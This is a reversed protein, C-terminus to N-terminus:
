ITSFHTTTKRNKSKNRGDFWILNQPNLGTFFKTQFSSSAKGLPVDLFEFNYPDKAFDLAGLLYQAFVFILFQRREKPGRSGKPATPEFIKQEWQMTRGLNDVFQEVVAGCSILNMSLLFEEDKMADITDNARVAFRYFDTGEYERREQPTHHTDVVDHFDRHCIRRYSKSVESVKIPVVRRKDLRSPPSSAHATKTLPKGLQMARITQNADDSLRRSDIFDKGFCFWFRRVIEGRKPLTSGGWIAKSHRFRDYLMDLVLAKGKSLISNELLAHYLYLVIRLQSNCDIMHCGLELNGYYCLYSLISGACLPNWLMRNGFSPQSFNELSRVSDFNQCWSDPMPVPSNAKHDICLLKRAWELQSFYNKFVQKGVQVLKDFIPEVELIATLMAHIGFVISWSVPKESEAVYTRMLGILPCLEDERPLKTEELVGRFFMETWGPLIDTMLLGDLDRIKRKRPIWPFKGFFGRIPMPLCDRPSNHIANRFGQLLRLTHHIARDGGIAPMGRFWSYPEPLVGDSMQQREDLDGDETKSGMGLEYNVCAHIAWFYQEMEKTGTPNVEWKDCFEQTIEDKRNYQDSATRFYCEICDGLYVTVDKETCSGEAHERVTAMVERTIEPFFVTALVRYPTTLHEHHIMLAMEHRRVQEIAMSTVVAAGLLKKVIASGPCCIGLSFEFSSAVYGYQMVVAEMNRELELLFLISDAREDSKMLEDLTLPQPLLSPREVPAPPFMRVDDEADASDEDDENDEEALTEFMNKRGGDVDSSDEGEKIVTPVKPLANLVSWCYILVDLFYKHGIDGGGYVSRAVKSRIRIALKLDSLVYRDITHVTNALMDSAEMLSDIAYNDNSSGERQGMVSPCQEILYAVFRNTAAKYRCYVTPFGKGLDAKKLNEWPLPTAENQKPDQPNSQSPTAANLPRRERGFRANGKNKSKKKKNKRSM